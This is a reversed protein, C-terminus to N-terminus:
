KINFGTQQEFHYGRGNCSKCKFRKEKELKVPLNPTVDWLTVERGTFPCNIVGVEKIVGVRELESFRSSITGGRLSMIDKAFANTTQSITCPGNHFIYKYVIWRMRSLLNESEIQRYVDLSTQRM